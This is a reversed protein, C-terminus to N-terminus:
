PVIPGTDPGVVSSGGFDGTDPESPEEDVAGRKARTPADKTAFKFGDMELIAEAEANTMVVPRDPRLTHGLAVVGGTPSGDKTGKLTVEKM